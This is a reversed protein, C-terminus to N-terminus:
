EPTAFNSRHLSACVHWHRSSRHHRHAHADAPRQRVVVHVGVVSGQARGRSLSLSAFECSCNTFRIPSFWSSSSVVDHRRLRCPVCDRWMAVRSFGNFHVRNSIPAFSTRIVQTESLNPCGAAMTMISRTRTQMGGSCDLSSSKKSCARRLVHVVFSDYGCTVPCTSRAFGSSLTLLWVTGFLLM